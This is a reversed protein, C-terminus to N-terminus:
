TEHTEGHEEISERIHLGGHITPLRLDMVEAM